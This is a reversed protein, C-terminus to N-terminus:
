EQPIEVDSKEDSVDLAQIRTGRWQTTELAEIKSQISRLKHTADDVNGGHQMRIKWQMSVGIKNAM